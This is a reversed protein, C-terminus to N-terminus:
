LNVLIFNFVTYLYQLYYIYSFRTTLISQFIPFYYFFFLKFFSKSWNESHQYVSPCLVYKRTFANLLECSYIAMEVSEPHIDIVLHIFLLPLAPFCHLSLHPISMSLTLTVHSLAFLVRILSLLSCLYGLTRYPIFNLPSSISLTLDIFYRDHM